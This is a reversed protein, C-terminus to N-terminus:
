AAASAALIVIADALSIAAVGAVMATPMVIPATASAALVVIADALSIAAVGAVM